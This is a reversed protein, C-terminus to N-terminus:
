FVCFLDGINGTHGGLLRCIRACRKANQKVAVQFVSVCLTYGRDTQRYGAKFRAFNAHGAIRHILFVGVAIFLPQPLTRGEIRISFHILGDAFLAKQFCRFCFFQSHRCVPGKRQFPFQRQM